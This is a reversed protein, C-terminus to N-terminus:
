LCPLKGAKIVEKSRRESSVVIVFRAVFLRKAVVGHTRVSM